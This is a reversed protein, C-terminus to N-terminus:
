SFAIKAEAMITVFFCDSERAIYYSFAIARGPLITMFFCYSEWACDDPFLLRERM